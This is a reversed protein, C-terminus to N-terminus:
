YYKPSTDKSPLSVLPKGGLRSANETPRGGDEFYIFRSDASKQWRWAILVRSHRRTGAWHAFRAHSAYLTDWGSTAVTWMYVKGTM